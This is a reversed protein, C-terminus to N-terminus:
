RQVPPARGYHLSIDDSPTPLSSPTACSSSRNIKDLAKPRSCSNIRNSAMVRPSFTDDLACVLPHSDSYLGVSCMRRELLAVKWLSKAISSHTCATVPRRCNRSLTKSSIEFVSALAAFSFRHQQTTQFSETSSSSQNPKHFDLFQPLTPTLIETLFVCTNSIVSSNM